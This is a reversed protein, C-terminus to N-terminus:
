LSRRDDARQTLACCIKRTADRAIDRQRRAAAIAAEVQNEYPPTPSPIGIRSFVQATMTAAITIVIPEIACLPSAVSFTASAHTGVVSFTPPSTAREKVM